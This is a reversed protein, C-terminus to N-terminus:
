RRLHRRFNLGLFVAMVILFIAGGFFVMEFGGVGFLAAAIVPGAAQGIRNTMGNASMVGARLEKPAEGVLLSQFAPFGVGSGAGILLAPGIMSWATPVLPILTVAFALIIISWILLWEERMFETLKGMMSAGLAGAIVRASIILGIVAASVGFTTALYIPLFTMVIGQNIIMLTPAVTLLSGTRANSLGRGVEILYEKVTSNTHTENEGLISLAMFGVPIALFYIIFPYQWGMLALLGGFIPVIGNSAQGFAIRYGLARTRERDSFLDGILTLSLTALSGAGFGALFRMVLLTDFNPAFMSLGGAIGYLMLMPVIVRRRGYRDAMIGIIPISVIGPLSFASVLLGIDAIDINLAEQIVPLAPSIVSAGFMTVMAIAIVLQMNRSRLLHPPPTEKVNESPGPEPPNIKSEM